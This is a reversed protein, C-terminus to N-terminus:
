QQTCCIWCSYTNFERMPWFNNLIFFNTLFYKFCYLTVSSKIERKRHMVTRPSLTLYIILQHTQISAHSTVYNSIAILSNTSAYYHTVASYPPAASAGGREAALAAALRKVHSVRVTLRIESKSTRYDVKLDTHTAWHHDGSFWIQIQWKM